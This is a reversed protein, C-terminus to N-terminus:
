GTARGTSPRISPTSQRPRGRRSVIAPPEPTITPAPEPAKPTLADVTRQFGEQDAKFRASYERDRNSSAVEAARGSMTALDRFLDEPNRNARFGVSQIDQIADALDIAKYNPSSVLAGFRGVAAQYPDVEVGQEGRLHEQSM